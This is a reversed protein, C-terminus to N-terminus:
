IIGNEQAFILWTLKDTLIYGGELDNMVLCPGMDMDASIYWKGFDTGEPWFQQELSHVFSGDGRSVFTWEKRAIAAFAAKATACIKVGAPDDMPGCLLYPMALLPIQPESFGSVTRVFGDDVLAQAQDGSKVLVLDVYGNRAASLVNTVTGTRIEVTYGTAKEFQPILTDVLGTDALTEDVALRVTATAATSRSISGIYCLAEDSLHFLTDGYTDLGFDGILERSDASMLWQTLADAGRHNLKVDQALFPGDQDVALLLYDQRLAPDSDLLVRTNLQAAPYTEVTEPVTTEEPGETTPQTEAVTPVPVPATDEKECGALLCATLLLTLLLCLMQRM